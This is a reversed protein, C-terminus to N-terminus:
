GGSSCIVPLYAGYSQFAIKLHGNTENSVHDDYAITVFGNPAIGVALAQAGRFTSPSPINRDLTTCRWSPLFGTTPGCNGLFSSYAIVPRALNVGQHYYAIIPRDSEDLVMDLPLDESWNGNKETILDCQYDGGSGCNGDSGVYHAYYLEGDFTNLSTNYSANEYALHVHDNQDLALAIDGNNADVDECSWAGSSAKECVRVYSYLHDNSSVYRQYAIVPRDDSTMALEIHYTFYYSLTDVNDSTWGVNTEYRHILTRTSGDILYYALHPYGYSDFQITPQFASIDLMEKEWSCGSFVQCTRIAIKITHSTTDQYAIGIKFNIGGNYYAIANESGVDGETDLTACSWAGRGCNGGESVREAFHLDDSIDDFYSIYPHYGYKGFTIDIGGEGADVNPSDDVLMFRWPYSAPPRGDSTTSSAAQCNRSKGMLFLLGGLLLLAAIWTRKTM